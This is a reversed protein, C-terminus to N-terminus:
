LRVSMQVLVTRPPTRSYEIFRENLLNEITLYLWVNNSCKYGFRFDLNFFPEFTQPVGQATDSNDDRLYIKGYFRGTLTATVKHWRMQLGFNYTYRPV